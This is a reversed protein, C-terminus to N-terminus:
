RHVETVVDGKEGLCDVRNTDVSIRPFNTAPRNSGVGVESVGIRRGDPMLTEPTSVHTHFNAVRCLPLPSSAPKLVRSGLKTRKGAYGTVIIRSRLGHKRLRFPAFLLPFKQTM